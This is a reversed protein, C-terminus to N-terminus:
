ASAAKRGDADASKEAKAVAGTTPDAVVEMSDSGSVTHVGLQLKGDEIEFKASIRTGERESAKLGGQLTATADKLAAALAKDDAEAWAPVVVAGWFGIAAIISLLQIPRSKM